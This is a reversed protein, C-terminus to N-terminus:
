IFDSPQTHINDPVSQPTRVADILVMGGASLMQGAGSAAKDLATILVSSADVIGATLMDKFRGESADFGFAGTGHTVTNLVSDPDFGSNRALQYLPTRLAQELLQAGTRRDGDMRSVAEKIAPLARIYATGGGPLLGGKLGALAAKLGSEAMETLLKREQETRAGIRIVATGDTLNAIRRSLKETELENKSTNRQFELREVYQKLSAKDGAGGSIFTADRSVRVKHARGCSSINALESRSNIETGFVVAGTLAAIDELYERRYLGFGPAKAACVKITGQSINSLLSTLVPESLDEAIILLSEKARSVSDLLPLIEEIKNIKRNCLFILSNEFEAEMKVMDTSMFPSNYGRDFALGDNHQFYCKNTDSPRISITGRFSVSELADAVLEGIEESGSAVVALRAAGERGSCKVAARDLEERAVAAASNLGERLFVPNAGAAINKMGGALISRALLMATTAGDGAAKVTEAGIRRLLQAGANENVNRLEISEAVASGSMSIQPMGGFGALIVGRGGPGYAPAVADAVIEVGRLLAERTGKEGSIKRKVEADERM